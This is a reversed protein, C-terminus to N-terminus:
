GRDSPDNCLRDLMLELADGAPSTRTLFAAGNYARLDVIASTTKVSRARISKEPTSTHAFCVQHWREVAADTAM